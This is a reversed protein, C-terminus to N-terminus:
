LSYTRKQGKSRKNKGSSLEVSNKVDCGFKVPYKGLTKLLWEALKEMRVNNNSCIPRMSVPTKHIKPLAYLSAVKPNSVHLRYQLSQDNMLECVSKKCSLAGKIMENLPSRANGNGYLVEEYPGQEIMHTIRNDYDIKDM